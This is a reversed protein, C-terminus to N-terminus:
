ARVARTPLSFKSSRKSSSCPNILLWTMSIKRSFNPGPYSRRCGPCVNRLRARNGQERLATLRSHKAKGRITTCNGTDASRLSEEEIYGLM